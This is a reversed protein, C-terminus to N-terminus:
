SGSSCSFSFDSWFTLPGFLSFPRSWGSACSREQVEVRRCLISTFPLDSKELSQILNQSPSLCTTSGTDRVGSSCDLPTQHLWPQQQFTEDGCPQPRQSDGGGRDGGTCCGSRWLNKQRSVQVRQERAEATWHRMADSTVTVEQGRCWRKAGKRCFSIRFYEMIIYVSHIWIHRLFLFTKFTRERELYIFIYIYIHRTKRNM